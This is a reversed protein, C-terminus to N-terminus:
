SGIVSRLLSTAFFGYFQAGSVSVGSDLDPPSWPPEQHERPGLRRGSAEFIGRDWCALNGGHM